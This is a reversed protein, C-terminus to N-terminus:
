VLASVWRMINTKKKVSLCITAFCPNLRSQSYFKFLSLSSFFCEAGSFIELFIFFLLSVRLCRTGTDWPHVISLLWYSINSVVDGISLGFCFDGDNQLFSWIFHAVILSASVSLWQRKLWLKTDATGRTEPEPLIGDSNAPNSLATIHLRLRAAIAERVIPTHTLCAVSVFLVTKPIYQFIIWLTNNWVNLLSYLNISRQAPSLFGEEKSDLLSFIFNKLM